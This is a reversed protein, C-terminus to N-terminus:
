RSRIVTEKDGRKVPPHNIGPTLLHKTGEALAQAAAASVPRNAKSTTWDRELSQEMGHETGEGQFHKPNELQLVSVEKAGWFDGGLGRPVGLGWM